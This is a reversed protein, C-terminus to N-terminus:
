FHYLENTKNRPLLSFNRMKKNVVKILSKIFIKFLKTILTVFSYLVKSILPSSKVIITYPPPPCLKKM